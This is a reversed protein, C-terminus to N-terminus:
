LESSGLDVEFDKEFRVLIKKLVNNEGIAASRDTALKPLSSSLVFVQKGGCEVIGKQCLQTFGLQKV